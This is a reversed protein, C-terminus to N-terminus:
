IPAMTHCYDSFQKNGIRDPIYEIRRDYASTLYVSAHDGSAEVISQCNHPLLSIDPALFLTSISLAPDNLTLFHSIASGKICNMDAIVVLYHPTVRTNTWPSKFSSNAREEITKAFENLIVKCDATSSAVYRVQRKEDYVHPLWRIDEWMSQEEKPYVVVLKLAEYSHLATANIIVSIAQSVVDEREGVIGMSPHTRLDFTVPINSVMSSNEAIARARDELPIERDYSKEPAKVHVCLPAEGVGLRVCMFQKSNEGRNWLENSNENLSACVQASPNAANLIHQQKKVVDVIEKEVSDLYSLYKGNLEDQSQTIEKKQSRYNIVSVVASTAAMLFMILYTLISTGMLVAMLVMGIVMVVPTAFVSLWNMKPPKAPNPANKIIIDKSPLTNTVAPSIRHFPYRASPIKPRPPLPKLVPPEPKPGPIPKRPREHKSLSFGSNKSTAENRKSSETLSSVSEKKESHATLNTFGKM